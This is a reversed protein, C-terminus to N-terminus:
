PWKMNYKRFGGFARKILEYPIGELKIDKIQPTKSIKLKEPITSKYSISMIGVYIM